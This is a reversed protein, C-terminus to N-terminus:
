RVSGPPGHQPRSLWEDRLIGFWLHDEWGDGSRLQARWCGERRFGNRELAIASGLNSQYAGAQIRHLGLSQFGFDTVLGIAATALGRGWCARDGIFYSIDACGHCTSIPGLKINGVHVGSSRDVIAFLYCSPDALMAEVFSRISEQSQKTWRTELYKNVEPDALWSEYTSGCDAAVVLRLAVREGLLFESPHIIKARIVDRM